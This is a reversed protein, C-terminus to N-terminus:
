EKIDMEVKDTVLKDIETNLEKVCYEIPQLLKRMKSTTFAPTLRQVTCMSLHPPPVNSRGLASADFGNINSFLAVSSGSLIDGIPGNVGRDRWYLNRRRLKLLTATVLLLIIAIALSIPLYYLALWTLVGFLVIVEGVGLCNAILEVM